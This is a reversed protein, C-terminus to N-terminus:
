GALRKWWPRLRYEALETELGSRIGELRSIAAHATAAEAAAQVLQAQVERERAASDQSIQAVSGLAANLEAALREARERERERDEREERLHARLEAVRELLLAVEGERTEPRDGGPHARRDEPPSGTTEERSPKPTHSVETLDIMVRARGDNGLSRPLRLGEVKKRAADKSVGWVEALEAYTMSKTAM